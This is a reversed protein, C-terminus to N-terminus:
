GKKKKKTRSGYVSKRFGTGSFQLAWGWVGQSKGCRIIKRNGALGDNKILHGGRVKGKVKKKQEPEEFFGIRFMKPKKRKTDGTIRRRSEKTL